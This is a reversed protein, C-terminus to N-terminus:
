KFYDFINDFTSAFASLIGGSVNGSGEDSSGSNEVVVRDQAGASIYEKRVSEERVMRLEDTAIQKIVTIDNKEDLQLVLENYTEAAEDIQSNLKDLKIQSNSVESYSYILGLILVAVVAVVVFFSLSIKGGRVRIERDKLEAEKEKEIARTTRKLRNKEARNKMKEAQIRDRRTRESVIVDRYSIGAPRRYRDQAPRYGGATYQSTRSAAPGSMRVNDAYRSGRFYRQQSRADYYTM